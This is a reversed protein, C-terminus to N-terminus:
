TSKCWPRPSGVNQELTHLSFLPIIICVWKVQSPVSQLGHCTALQDSIKFNLNYPHFGCGDMILNIIIIMSNNTPKVPCKFYIPKMCVEILWFVRDLFLTVKLTFYKSLFIYYITVSCNASWINKCPSQLLFTINRIQITNM